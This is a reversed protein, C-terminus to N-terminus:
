YDILAVLKSLVLVRCYSHIIFVYASLRSEFELDEGAVFRCDMGITHSATSRWPM